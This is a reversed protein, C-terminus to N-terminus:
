PAGGDNAALIFDICDVIESIERTIELTTLEDRYRRLAIVALPALKPFQTSKAGKTHYTRPLNMSVRSGKRNGRGGRRPETKRTM